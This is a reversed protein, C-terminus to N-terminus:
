NKADCRIMWTADAPNTRVERIWWDTGHAHLTQEIEPAAPHLDKRLRVVLTAVLDTSGQVDLLNTPPKPATAPLPPGGAIRIECPWLAEGAASARQDFALLRAANM